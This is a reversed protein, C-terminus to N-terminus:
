KKEITLRREKFDRQEGCEGPLDIYFWETNGTHYQQTTQLTRPGQSGHAPSRSSCFCFKISVASAPSRRDAEDLENEGMHMSPGVLGM